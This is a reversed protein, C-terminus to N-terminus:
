APTRKALELQALVADNVSEFINDEGLQDIVGDRKLIEIIDPRVRALLFRIEHAHAYDILEGLQASGQSDIFTVSRCDLVIATPAPEGAQILERFRDGLADSTAFFLGSDLSLVVLGPFLEDDPYIDIERFIHTGRERGLVPMAPSTVTYVLWGISLIVGVVVGGLVGFLLVGVLAAVAIWFDSRKVHFMRRMAPLDIMGMLVAEIIVAGLVPEPLVSFVPAIVLMTLVIVGGTVLSAVQSKAGSHDNLSSASLSTAVPIGQFVGSGINAAGQALSEQDINIRYHHKIAFARAYGANQSFGVMVIGVAAVLMYAANDLFVDLSPISLAPLGRPVDGVLEVGRDGLDFLTSALLGGVVVILTGPLRPAVARLAFLAVLALVGVFLTTRSLDGLGDVWSWFEQWANDGDDSTGTLKNLEGITVDLAAGFLFGVIVARSIFQSIWGMKFITMALFLVGTILAIGAVFEVAIQDDAIGTLILASGAIAALSSSPNTAIQRSTGFVAYLLAGAAAAYLGHQIPVGAIGAYGLSKPVVLAAVTLGAIVDPRLWARDYKPAWNLVPLLRAVGALRGSRGNNSM